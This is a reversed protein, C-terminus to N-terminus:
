LYHPIVINNVATGGSIVNLCISIEKNRSAKNCIVLSIYVTIFLTRIYNGTKHLQTCAADTWQLVQPSEADEPDLVKEVAKVGVAETWILQIGDKLSHDPRLYADSFM